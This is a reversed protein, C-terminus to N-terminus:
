AEQLQRAIEQSFAEAAEPGNGTIIRGDREVNKGTYLAGAKTLEPAGDVWVTARKGSLLGARALIVPAICIAAVVKGAQAFGNALAHVVGDDFYQEAGGGGVFILGEYDAVKIQSVLLDPRVKAGLKGVAQETTTSATVVELGAESLIMKPVLYEEDRFQREAIVLVVKEGM